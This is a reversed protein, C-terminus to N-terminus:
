HFLEYLELGIESCCGKQNALIVAIVDTKPYRFVRCSVGAEEGTASWRRIQNNEDLLFWVGYGYHISVDDDVCDLVKPTLFEDVLEHSFFAGGELANVFRILDSSTSYAGGDSLGNPPIRYVNRRWSGEQGHEGRDKFYGEAVNEQVAELDVFGSDSMGAETFIDREIVDTYCLGTCAEICLGLLLYGANNYSFKAGPSDVQKLQSLLSRFDSLSRLSYNPIQEMLKAFGNGGNEPFYDEIGSTHTLLHEITIDTAWHPNELDIIDRLRSEFSIKGAASLRFLEVGTFSKAISATAFRTSPSNPVCFARNAYGWAKQFITEKQRTIHVVGSFTGDKALSTALQDIASIDRM